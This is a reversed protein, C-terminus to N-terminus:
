VKPPSDVDQAVRVARKLKRDADSDAFRAMPANALLRDARKKGRDLEKVTTLFYDQILWERGPLTQGQVTIRWMGDGWQEREIIKLPQALMMRGKPIAAICQKIAFEGKTKDRVFIDVAITRLGRPTVHVATIHQNHVWIIEGNLARVRTSRLTFREVVGSVDLFPEIKIFDGIKFWGETIMISGATLDRLVIGVTQGAIVVFFAGAGIAAAGNAAGSSALPAMARWALYGVVAVVLARVIAVAMGLYTEVQRLKVARADNSENDSRVAIRQALFILLKALFQSAWYAMILSLVLILLSRFTNPQVLFDHLEDFIVTTQPTAM